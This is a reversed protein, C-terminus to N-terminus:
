LLDEIMEQYISHLAAAAKLSVKLRGIAVDQDEPSVIELEQEIIDRGSELIQWLELYVYGVEECDKAEEDMPDSVVTFKLHRQEPNQAQLMDFLFQRRGQQELPDLDIVKSFHFHIEEGARPKRLSVPTETESLPLDYFRYEVYVQKVKEDSMVEAEPYFALSVIEISMKESDPKPYKESLPAVVVDDRDTAQTESAESTQESSEPDVNIPHPTEEQKLASHSLTMEEEELQTTFGDDKSIKLGSFKWDMYNVQQITDGSLINRSFCELRNRGQVGLRQGHKRRSYSVVQHEKEKRAGVQPLKRKAQYQDAETPVEASSLWNKTHAEPKLFSEPPLYHSKWDLKLQISGNPKEAPDILNFDGKIPNNQALPLLPVQVRGLYSGPESDEDDFVYISLAEQRLYQDLESSELVPFQAQDKFYPNDSAPIITTDHDSFTFFRYVAYPSPQTGLRRSRLGCCRTIEIRLENQPNRTDSRSEDKQAERAGHVSASLYAQAKKQKRCAQLSVRLPLRLRVWYELVGFDEGGAGTLMASGHVKEVTELVKDFCIWAAALTQHESAVAQHLDLQASAGQLYHLFLSSTEVVYQSTFDYLPQPGVSLPTCHTEFDYFAYTCFTTPQTDGAQVLAASTLFAQHIHLEFLNESQHLLSIDVGDEDGHAPLTELCLSLPQTGYAVDKLQEELQKIRNNKLDLLQSLRELKERHDKSESDAKTMMAELEEQYCMNIQHQLLLMDRTKELELTTEAHSVRLESLMQSLKKEEQVKPESPEIQATELFPAQLPALESLRPSQATTAAKQFMEIEQKHKQVINTVELKLDENQAKETSLQLLIKRKEELEADLQDQLQSLQQWLQDGALNSSWPPQKRSDLMDELLRNYSDTLLKQEKELDEVREQFEKLTTKLVSADELQSRLSVTKKCEEKFEARLEDMQSFLANHAVSLIGQNKQLLTEYAEQVETLQAKTAALSTEREHLLKKLRILEVNEKISARLEAAKQTCELSSKQEFNEDQSWMKEPSSPPEEVQMTNNSMIHTPKSAECTTESRPKEKTVHEKFTPPATYSPRVRPAEGRAPKEPERAGATHLQRHGLRGRLQARDPALARVRLLPAPSRHRLSRQHVPLRQRGAAHSPRSAPESKQSKQAAAAAQVRRDGGVATLRLRILATRLRKIEEQQKWFLGKVSMHEERLRFLSDELEERSMRSLAPQTKTNKGKWLFVSDTDRVPLDGLTHDMVHSM